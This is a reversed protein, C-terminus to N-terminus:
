RDVLRAEKYGRAVIKGLLRRAVAENRVPGLRVRYLVAGRVTAPVVQAHGISAISARVREANRPVAFAGAQIFIGGAHRIAPAEARDAAQATAPRRRLVEAIVRPLTDAHAAPILSPWLRRHPVSAVVRHPAAEVVPEPPAPPGPPDASALLAPPEPAPPLVPAAPPAAQQPTPLPAAIVEEARLSPPKSSALRMPARRGAAVAVPAAPAAEAYATEGFEGRMAAAAVRISDDKDIQVRVPATGQRAFGLLQAARRSVDILRDGAFPGRDNVRLRLERGNQLNTVTVVSPLPLTKHAATLGNMDYTEGDATARGDFGPGYWSATGTEAYAYDVKPYYWVGNVEYPKVTYHPHGAWSHGGGGGREAVPPASSSACGSLAFAIAVIVPLNRVGAPPAM